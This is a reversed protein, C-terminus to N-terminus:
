VSMRLLLLLQRQLCHIGFNQYKLRLCAAFNNVVSSVLPLKINQIRDGADWTIEGMGKEAAPEFSM